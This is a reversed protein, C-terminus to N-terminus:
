DPSFETGSTVSPIKVCIAHLVLKYKRIEAVYARSFMENNSYM